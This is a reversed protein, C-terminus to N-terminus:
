LGPARSRHVGLVGFPRKASGPITVSMGGRVQHERLLAPGSFRDESELDEVVVASGALLTYGAQSEQEIGVTANGVLGEQWGIGARLILHDAHDAFQLVKALSCGVADALIEVIKQLAAGFDSENLAISGITALASQQALRRAMAQSAKHHDTMDRSVVVYGSPRGFEDPLVTVVEDWITVRGSSSTYTGTFRGSGASAAQKVADVAADREAGKWFDFYSLGEAQAPDRIELSTCGCANISQLRGDLDLWRSAIRVAPSCMGPLCKVASKPASGCETDGDRRGNHEGGRDLDRRAVAIPRPNVLIQCRTGDPREVVIETGTVERNEKLCIAMPCRDHTLAEGDTSYIKWAGCWRTEGIVPRAGWLAAAPENFYTILGAADTAYIAAFTMGLVDDASPSLAQLNRVSPQDTM